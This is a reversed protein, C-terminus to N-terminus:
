DNKKVRVEVLHHKKDNKLKIYDEKVAKKDIIIEKKPQNLVVKIEYTTEMHQYTIVYDKWTSKVKPNLYLKTGRLNFGLIDVLAVKYFWGSSGTYWTWGGQAKFQKNSYIDAAFVYPEVKYKLVDEKTLTRNIPNVMQYHQYALDYNGTKLLAMIYWAVAHSYQGGNERIGKPYDMIYGPYDKSKFFPPTLLKIIQLDKDVLKEEVAKIITQEQDQDAVDSLLAFSQSILDIACEENKNSGVAKGNDFFARLYYQGDWAVNKLSEKLKQNFDLYKKISIKADYEKTMEIFREIMMHLFFGLWVSTGKGKIGIKNMGDNWDGGGMLPLGNKGMEKMAKHIALKCHDYISAEEESFGYEMLKEYEDEKLTEGKVFPIKKKLLAKDETILLYESTAYVLWLYDDKYLSRLGLSSTEHWWHLVDGEPFQHKANIIIQEKTKLPDVLCINMADQLQDRFGFAGGVQYFGAKAQLRSSITQYLAWGNIMYNFSDDQTKVQIKSLTEEWNSKVKAFEKNVTELNNYKNVIRKLEDGRACGLTFIIEKESREDLYFEVEIEKFLLNNAIVESIELNSAMFTHYHSYKQNYVNRVSLFNEKEYFETLLYRGTKEESFGLVPNIWFKLNVKQKRVANNKLTLKYFKVKDKLAVFQILNLDVRKYNGNFESYGFGHKVANFNLNVDNIKFGESYDKGLVDNTWSTLKYEQSNLAYTFGANDNTIVTGFHENSIVNTWAHPTKQNVILYEKGDNIFGGFDNFFTIEKEDYKLPANINVKEVKRVDVTNLGQLVNIYEQLSQHDKSNIILRAVTKLLIFEKEDMEDREVLHINGPLKAFSNLAFMRYKEDEIKSAIIKAHDSDFSNMIVLDIFISKSKYYEFARLLEKVLSLSELDNVKLLVIPRDGSIDFKWLDRQCLANQKLLNTDDENVSIYRTQLLYNLMTNYLRMDDSTINVMKNTINTMITAVEFGQEIITQENSYTRVINLVQDKSKGFGSVLYVTAEDNKPVKVTNRLSIIPDLLTGTYNRLRRNLARPNTSNLGRGIFHARNTEYEYEGMPEDILLRNIMYYREKSGRLKRLVIVSNTEKDYDSYVFLNNFAPHSLDDLSECLIPETYSTLELHKDKNSNNKFTIKRIEANHSRTVVIETTTIVDKDTRVFKVKDLAFVVEYNTPKLLSPSYTNSWIRKTDLDKIYIFQGYEQETVKRHRNLQITRYKSYGNGRDNIIVSYKSNSLVSLEPLSSIYRYVRIDNVFSEKEYTYKKYKMIKFDITPRLQVREKNLFEIAQNRIDDNFYTQIIGKKLYNALSGMIMGQHHSFYAEVPTKDFFDYSEYFGYEGFMSFKEFRELNKMVEQPFLPLALLSSYPSVVIRNLSEEKLKLQPIGFARYKYNQGNDLENYASESIGWPYNSKISKMFDKQVFTAFHYSEDLITNAYSKMFIVPMFYEFTTGGWSSLGKQKKYTTLTKDLSFWHKIPVDGKAIAVYSGIRSESMFKNYNFPELYGKDIDYGISFVESETYLWKFDTKNILREVKKMLDFQKHKKLFGKVVMLSAVFNGSDVSSVFRPYLVELTQINYWNFLHGHWKNMNDVTTVVNNILSFAEKFDILDMEYGSIISVLSLGINTPSTKTDEKIDRNVQYNDPILYNNEKKLNDEFFKWTRKAIDGLYKKNKYSIEQADDELPKSVLYILLPSVLFLSILGINLPTLQSVKLSYILIFLALLYNLWFQKITNSLNTKVFKAADDATMWNLLNKKSFLMRYLSKLFSTLYLHANFPISILAVIGRLIVAKYGVMLVKYHKLSLYNKRLIISLYETMQSIVPLLCIYFVFGVWWLPNVLSSTLSIILILLLFFELLGRRLNDFIKWKGIVTLPNKEYELDKTKVRPFLWGSIQMDGRAWRSRRAADVLFASPFDDIFEVDVMNACGLYNGELLDHSLILNEPFRNRLIEQTIELDYIGKGCFSGEKFVDQYFSPFIYNYSDFGGIGAYLQSFLSNNTSEVDINIRPQLIAHGRIVKNGEENLVPKNLPHAMAGVLKWVANLGVQTDGDLTIIYKISESFGEFSHGKFHEDEEKKSYNGLLLDNFQLLSGRKREYGLWCGEGPNYKRKRFAFNFLSSGYKKNLREIVRYGAEVVENDTPLEEKDSGGFDGILTFYLNKTRNALYIKELSEFVEEVRQGTKVLTPVVVMTKCDGPIGKSFDLKPLPQSRHFKLFINQLFTIVVESIPILLVIFGFLRYKTLFSSFYFSFGGTFLAVLSIYFLAKLNYNKKDVLHETVDQKESLSEQLLDMLEINGKRSKHKLYSRYIEKTELTMKSYSKDKMLIQEIDNLKEFLNEIVIMSANSLTLFINKIVINTEVNEFHEMNIIDKMLKNNSKLLNDLQKFILNSHEGLERLKENLCIIGHNTSKALSFYDSLLVKSQNLLDIKLKIILKDIEKEEKLKKAERDCIFALKRLLLLEIVNPIITLEKYRLSYSNDEQYAELEKILLKEDVLYHNKELIDGILEFMDLNKKTYKYMEKNKSFNVLWKEREALLYYNDVIWENIIGVFYNNNIIRTLSKYHKTIKRFEKRVNM